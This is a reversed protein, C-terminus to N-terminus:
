EQGNAERVGADMRRFVVLALLLLAMPLLAAYFASQGGMAAFVQGTIFSGTTGGLASFVVILGTMPAHTPTPLASLIRSNIIPYIPALFLGITPLLFAALPATGWTMDPRPELGTTLPLTLVILLTMAAICTALLTFWGVFRLVLGAGLRGVATSLAFLSTALVSMAQPMGLVENNFTPLWTGIAQEILVYLFASALFVLVLPRACLTFMALMDRRTDFAAPRAASEDIPTAIVLACIAFSVIALPWYVQLWGLGAPDASDIFASFVLYGSLVGVMFLGELVNMLSAHDRADRSVLGLLAFCSVKVLAFSMGTIAFLLKATAFAPVLPMAICAIGVLACALALANKLGFRPLLSAVLFSTIAIPLDKFAELVSASTKTQGLSAISQLIVTGVSNLLVAFLMYSLCIALLIRFRPTTM